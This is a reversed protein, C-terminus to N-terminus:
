QDSGGMGGLLVGIGGLILFIPWIKGMDIGALFSLGIVAVAAAGVAKSRVEKNVQEGNAKYTEWASKGLLFAPILIFFAWWNFNFPFDVGLSQLLFISGLVILVVGGMVPGSMSRSQSTTPQENPPLESSM